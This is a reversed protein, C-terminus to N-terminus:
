SVDLTEAFMDVQGVDAHSVQGMKPNILVYCKLIVSDHRHNTTWKPDSLRKSHWFSM